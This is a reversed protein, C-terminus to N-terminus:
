KSEQETVVNNHGIVGSVNSPGKVNVLKDHGKVMLQM